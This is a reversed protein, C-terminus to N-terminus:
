LRNAFIARVRELDAATDVGAAPHAQAIHVAIGFGNELARLQELSEFAELPGVPLRPFTNLFGVKYAYLGIHHLAPLNPALVRNGDALAE